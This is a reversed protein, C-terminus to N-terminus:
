TLYMPAYDARRTNFLKPQKVIYRTTAPKEAATRAGALRNQADKDDPHYRLYQEYARIAPVYKGDAHLTRAIRLQLTSDAYGYREANQYAAAARAFQNLKECCEGMRFAVMGRQPREERKTLKNYIKRYTKQADFYEGRAMQENATSLKAGGCGSLAIAAVTAVCLATKYKM